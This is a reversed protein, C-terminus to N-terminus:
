RTELRGRVLGFASGPHVQTDTEMSGEGHLREMHGRRGGATGTGAVGGMGTAM